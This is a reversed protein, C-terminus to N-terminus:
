YKESKKCDRAIFIITFIDEDSFNPSGEDCHGDSSATMCQQTYKHIFYFVFHLYLRQWVIESQNRSIFLKGEPPNTQNDCCRRFRCLCLFYRKLSTRSIRLHKPFLCVVFEHANSLNQKTRVAGNRLMAVKQFDQFWANLTRIYPM